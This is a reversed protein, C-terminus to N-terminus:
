RLAKAPMVGELGRPLNETVFKAGASTLTGNANTYGLERLKATWNRVTGPACPIGSQTLWEHILSPQGRTHKPAAQWAMDSLQAVLALTHWDTANSFRRRPMRQPADRTLEVNHVVDMKVGGRAITVLMSVLWAGEENADIASRLAALVDAHPQEHCISTDSRDVEDV